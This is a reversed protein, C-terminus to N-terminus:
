GVVEGVLFQPQSNTFNAIDAIVESSNALASDMQAQDDFVMTAVAYFPAPADPAGGGIGRTVLTSAIHAGMKEGVLPMHTGLYYDFDFHTDETVPYVVQMSLSM